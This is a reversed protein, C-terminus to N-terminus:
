EITMASRSYMQGRSSRSLGVGPSSWEIEASTVVKELLEFIVDGGFASVLSSLALSGAVVWTLESLSHVVKQQEHM